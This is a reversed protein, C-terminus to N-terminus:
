RVDVVVGALVNLVVDALVDEVLVVLDVILYLM